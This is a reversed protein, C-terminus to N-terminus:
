TESRREFYNIESPRNVEYHRKLLECKLTHYYVCDRCNRGTDHRLRCRDVCLMTQENLRIHHKHHVPM